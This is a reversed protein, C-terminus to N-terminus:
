VTERQRTHQQHFAGAYSGHEDRPRFVLAERFTHSFKKGEGEIRMVQDVHHGAQEAAPIIQSRAIGGNRRGIALGQRTADAAASCRLSLNRRRARLSRGRHLSM